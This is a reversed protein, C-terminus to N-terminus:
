RLKRERIHYRTKMHNKINNLINYKNTHLVSLCNVCEVEFYINKSYKKYDKIDQKVNILNDNIYIDTGKTHLILPVYSTRKSNNTIIRPRLGKKKCETCFVYFNTHRNYLHTYTDTKSADILYSCECCCYYSAMYMYNNIYM